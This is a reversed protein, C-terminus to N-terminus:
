RIDYFRILLTSFKHVPRVKFAYPFNLHTIIRQHVKYSIHQTILLKKNVKVLYKTIIGYLYSYFNFLVCILLM